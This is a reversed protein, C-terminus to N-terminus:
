EVRETAGIIAMIKKKNAKSVFFRNKEVLVDVATLGTNNTITPNAGNAILFQVMEVNGEGMAFHLPTNGNSDPKNITIGYKLLTAIFRPDGTFTAARVVGEAFIDVGEMLIYEFIPFRLNQIAYKFIEEKNMVKNQEKAAAYLIFFLRNTDDTYLAGTVISMRASPPKITPDAKYALLLQVFNFDGQQVATVLVTYGGYAIINPDAGADLLLRANDIHNGRVTSGLPTEGGITQANVNAGSKILLEVFPPTSLSAAVHLLSYKKDNNIINPDANYQLLLKCISVDKASFIAVELGSVIENKIKQHPLKTNADFGRDLMRKVAQYDKKLIADRFNIKDTASPTQAFAHQPLAIAVLFAFLLAFYHRNLVKNIQMGLTWIKIKVSLLLSASFL